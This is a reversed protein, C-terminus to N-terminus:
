EVGVEIESGEIGELEAKVQRAFDHGHSMDPSYFDLDAEYHRADHTNTECYGWINEDGYHGILRECADRYKDREATLTLQPRLFVIDGEKCLREFAEFSHDDHPYSRTYSIGRAGFDFGSYDDYWGKCIDWIDSARGGVTYPALCPVRNGAILLDFLVRYDTSWDFIRWFDPITALIKNIESM